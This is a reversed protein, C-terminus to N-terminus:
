KISEIEEKLESENNENQEKSLLRLVMGDYEHWDDSVTLKPNPRFLTARIYDGWRGKSPNKMQLSTLNPLFYRRLGIFINSTIYIPIKKALVEGRSSYFATQINEKVEDFKKTMLAILLNLLLLTGSITFAFYLLPAVISVTQGNRDDTLTKWDLAEGMLARYMRVIAFGPNSFDLDSSDFNVAALYMSHGFGVIFILIVILYQLLTLLMMTFLRSVEASASFAGGYELLKLWLYLVCVAFVEREAANWNSSSSLNFFPTRVILITSFYITGPMVLWDPFNWVDKVYRKFGQYRMHAVEVALLLVALIDVIACAVIRLVYFIPPDLTARAGLNVLLSTIILFSMFLAVEHGFASYRNFYYSNVISCRGM